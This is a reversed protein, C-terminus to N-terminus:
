RAQEDPPNLAQAKQFATFRRSEPLPIMSVVISPPIIGCCPSFAIFNSRDYSPRLARPVLWPKVAFFVFFVFFSDRFSIFFQTIGPPLPRRCM